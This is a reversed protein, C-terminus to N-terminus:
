IANTSPEKTQPALLFRKLYRRVSVPNVHAADSIENITFKNSLTAYIYAAAETYPNFSNECKTKMKEEVNKQEINSLNLIKCVKNLIDESSFHSKKQLFHNIKKINVDCVACIDKLRICNGLEVCKEYTFIALLERTSLSSKSKQVHNRLETRLIEHFFEPILTLPLNFHFICDWVLLRDPNSSKSYYFHENWNQNKEFDSHFYLDNLVIGCNKCVAQEDFIIDHEICDM